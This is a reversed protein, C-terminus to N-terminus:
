VEQLRPMELTTRYIIGKNELVAKIQQYEMGLNILTAIEQERRNVAELEDSTLFNMPSAKGEIGRAKRLQSANFGLATKYALNTFHIYARSSLGADRIADTMTRRIPKGLGRLMERAM